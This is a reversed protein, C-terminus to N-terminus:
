LQLEVVVGFKIEVTFKDDFVRIREVLRRILQEECEDLFTQQAKIFATM